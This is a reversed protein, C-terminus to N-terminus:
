APFGPALSGDGPPGCRPLESAKIAHSLLCLTLFATGLWLLATSRLRAFGMRVDMVLGWVLLGAILNFSVPKLAEFIEHPRFYVFLLLAAITPIAFM